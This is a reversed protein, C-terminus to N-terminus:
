QSRKQQASYLKKRKKTSSRKTRHPALLPRMMGQSAPLDPALRLAAPVIPIHIPCHLCNNVCASSCVLISSPRWEVVTCMGCEPPWSWGLLGFGFWVLSVLCVDRMTEHTWRSCCSRVLSHLFSSYDTLWSRHPPIRAQWNYHTHGLCSFFATILWFTFSFWTLLLWLCCVRVLHIM